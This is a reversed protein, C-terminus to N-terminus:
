GALLSLAAQQAVYPLVAYAGGFTVVAAKSFFIGERFITHDWGLFPGLISRCGWIAIWIVSIGLAHLWKPKTHLTIKSTAPLVSM